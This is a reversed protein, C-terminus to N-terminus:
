GTGSLGHSLDREQEADSLEASTESILGEATELWSLQIRVENMAAEIEIIAEQTRQPDGPFFIRNRSKQLFTQRGKLARVLTATVPNELWEQTQAASLMM